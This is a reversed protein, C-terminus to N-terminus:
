KGEKEKENVKPYREKKGKESENRLEQDKEDEKKM